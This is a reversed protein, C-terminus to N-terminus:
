LRHLPRSPASDISRSDVTTSEFRRLKPLQRMILLLLLDCGKVIRRQVPRRQNSGFNSDEAGTAGLPRPREQHMPVEYEWGMHTLDDIPRPTPGILYANVLQRIDHLDVSNVVDHRAATDTLPERTTV